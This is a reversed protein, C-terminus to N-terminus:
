FSWIIILFLDTTALPLSHSFATLVFSVLTEKLYHFMKQIRIARHNRSDVGHSLIECFQLCTCARVCVRICSFVSYPRCNLESRQMATLQRAKIM